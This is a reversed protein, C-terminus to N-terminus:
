VGELYNKLDVLAKEWGERHPHVAEEESFNEQTVQLQSGNGRPSFEIILKFHGDQVAKDPLQWNWSYVLRKAEQVEEYNGAIAFGDKGSENLFHYLYAGGPKLDIQVEQLHSNLPHWWQKLKDPTVWAKYLQEIPVNFDKALQLKIAQEKEM